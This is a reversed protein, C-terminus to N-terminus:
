NGCLWRLVKILKSDPSRIIFDGEKIEPYKKNKVIEFVLYDLSDNNPTQELDKCHNCLKVGM